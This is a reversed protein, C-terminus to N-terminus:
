AISHAVEIGPAAVPPARLRLALPTPLCNYNIYLLILVSTREDRPERPEPSTDGGSHRPTDPVRRRTTRYYGIRDM